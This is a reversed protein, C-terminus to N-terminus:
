LEDGKYYYEDTSKEIMEEFIKRRSSEKKSLEIIFKVDVKKYINFLQNNIEPSTM